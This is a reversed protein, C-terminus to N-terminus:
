DLFWPKLSKACRFGLGANKQYRIVYFRFRADQFPYLVAVSKRDLIPYPGGRVVRMEAPNLIMPDKPAKPYPLGWDNMWEAVNSFLGHIPPDNWLRDVDDPRGVPGFDWDEIKRKLDNSPLSPPPLKGGLTAAFEYEREWPLRKGVREAFM